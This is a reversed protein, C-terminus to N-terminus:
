GRDFALGLSKRYSNATVGTHKKFMRSFYSPDRFGLAFAIDNCSRNSHTLLRCAEQIIRDNILRKPSRNGMRRCIQNLRSESVCLTELYDVLPRQQAYLQEILESFQRYVRFDTDALRKGTEGNPSLRLLCVLITRTLADLVSAKAFQDRRWECAFNALTTVLLHWDADQHTGLQNAIIGFGARLSAEYASPVGQKFQQWV